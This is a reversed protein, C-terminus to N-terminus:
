SPSSPLTEPLSLIIHPLTHHIRVVFVQLHQALNRSSRLPQLNFVKQKSEQKDTKEHTCIFHITSWTQSAMPNTNNYLISSLIVLHYFLRTKCQIGHM